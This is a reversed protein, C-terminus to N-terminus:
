RLHQPRRDFGISRRIEEFDRELSIFYFRASLKSMSKLCLFIDSTGVLSIYSVHANLDRLMIRGTAELRTKKVHITAKCVHDTEPM